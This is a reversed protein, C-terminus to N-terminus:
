APHSRAGAGLCLAGGHSLERGDSVRAARCGPDGAPRSARGSRAPLLGNAIPFYPLCAWSSTCPRPVRGGRGQARAAVMPEAGFSPPTAPRAGLHAADALLWGSFNPSRQVQGKGERGAREARRHDRRSRTAMDPVHAPVAIYDHAAAARDTSPVASAPAVARRERRPGTGWTSCVAAASKPPRVGQRPAFRPGRWAREYGRGGSHTGVHRCTDQRPSPRTWVPADTRRRAGESNNTAVWGVVSV